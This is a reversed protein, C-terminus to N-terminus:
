VDLPRDTARDWRPVGAADRVSPHPQHRVRDGEHTLHVVALGAVVVLADALLRRHCRAPDGEACMVALATARAREALATLAAHGQDSALHDAYGRLEAPTVGINPSDPETERRGGLAEWWQYAVGAGALVDALRDRNFQPNRRSFPTRRVDVLEDVGAAAVLGALRDGGLRGHGITLVVGPGAEPAGDSGAPDASTAAGAPM